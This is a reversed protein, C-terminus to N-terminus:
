IFSCVLIEISLDFRVQIKAERDNAIPNGARSIRNFSQPTIETTKTLFESANMKIKIRQSIM